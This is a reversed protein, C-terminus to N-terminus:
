SHHICLSRYEYYVMAMKIRVQEAEAAMDLVRLVLKGM